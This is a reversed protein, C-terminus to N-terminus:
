EIKRYIKQECDVEEFYKKVTTFRISEKNGLALYGRFALSDSFLSLSREQLPKTFYILVNRCSVFQVEAFVSDTALSHDSFLINKKFESKIVGFDDDITFYKQIFDENGGALKYNKAYTKLTDKSYIGKKARSLSSPCIDTAYIHSRSLLGFENLLIIYSYVEEGTSCGAVWIKISSYTMLYPLVLTKFSKFYDTDRFMETVPVTLFNLLNEFYGDNHLIKDQLETISGMGMHILAQNIRRKLSSQAYERFDYHFKLYIAELLLKLDIEDDNLKVV